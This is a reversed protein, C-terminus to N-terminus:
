IPLTIKFATGKGTETAFDITGGMKEVFSKCVSLGLGMGRKGASDKTTFFPDFVRSHFEEPIGEGRDSVTINLTDKMVSATVRVTEGEPSADIANDILNYVIQRFSSEEMTVLIPADGTEVEITKKRDRLWQCSINLFSVVDRIVENVSFERAAEKGPRYLDYMQSVISAIRDIERDILGVYKYYPYDVPIADKILLFSNKIGALPNNIEHAIRAAMQGTAAAKENEM